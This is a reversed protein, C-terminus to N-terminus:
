QRVTAAIAECVERDQGSQHRGCDKQLDILREWNPDCGRIRVMLPAVCLGIERSDDTSFLTSGSVTGESCASRQKAIFALRRRIQESTMAYEM